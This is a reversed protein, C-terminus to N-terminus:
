AKTINVWLVYDGYNILCMSGRVRFTNIDGICSFLFAQRIFSIGEKITNFQRDVGNFASACNNEGITYQQKKM